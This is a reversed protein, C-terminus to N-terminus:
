LSAHASWRRQSTCDIDISTRDQEREGPWHCPCEDNGATQGSEMADQGNMGRLSGESWEAQLANPKASNGLGANVVVSKPDASAHQECEGRTEHM